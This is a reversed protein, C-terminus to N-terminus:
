PPGGSNTGKVMALRQPLLTYRPEVRVDDIAMRVAKRSGVLILLKRARTMATYLLNRRLMIYHQTLLPLIVVPFESGQSKHITIAYAHSLQDGEEFNYSVRRQGDFIVTFRRMGLDIHGLRGLDGNFVNKDYNNSTQMLKDGIRFSRNGLHFELGGEPNLINQLFENIAVTGCSGRNMPTLVQVDDIPNLHFRAPIRETLLKEIMVLTKDPDDQEIWYFDSLEKFNAPPKEPLLGQNVRHANSIIHSNQAQRFIQVLRTVRFWKSSLFDALIRGPGVSPLQDADGVLVVSAGPKIARFLAQALLIDLMSVEDIVLLDHELKKIFNKQFTKKIPDFQLLRHLTVAKMNTSESLRKAARGTPAALAIQLRAVKARRVIEGVVTTKGVGPGGTIISLPYQAVTDVAQQQERNLAIGNNGPLSHLRRGAFNSVSALKAILNPLDMEARALLPLYYMGDSKWLLNSRVASAIGEAVREPLQQTLEVTQRVLEEDPLCVHGGAVALSLCHVSAASIRDVSDSKIGLRQAIEDAKQFGFGEVEAALRYPNDRVMQTASDKYRRFLRDCYAPSIGLGQLYIYSERRKTSNNWGELVMAAKKKGIGPIEELRKSSRNLITLTQEGFHDVILKATKKGIGPIASCLFSKIGDPTSPLRIRFSEVKFQRGFEPHQEWYGDMELYQGVSLSGMMGTAVQMCGTDDVLRLVAFQNDKSKYIVRRIEGSLQSAELRPQNNVNRWRSLNLVPLDVTM